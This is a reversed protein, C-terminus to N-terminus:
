RRECSEGTLMQVDTEGDSDTRRRSETSGEEEVVTMNIHDTQMIAGALFLSPVFINRTEKEEKKTREVKVCLNM